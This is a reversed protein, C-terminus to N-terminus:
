QSKDQNIKELEEEIKKIAKQLTELDTKNNSSDSNVDNQHITSYQSAYTQM